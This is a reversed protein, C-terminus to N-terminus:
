LTNPNLLEDSEKKLYHLVSANNQQFLRKAIRQIADPTVRFWAEVQQNLRNADGLLEYYALNMAKAVVNSESFTHSAEVKNKVKQLERDGIVEDALQKLEQWIAQEAHVIDIDTHPKGTIIFLGPDMSGTIYANIESFLKQDHLLKGTLRASEGNALLDSLLDTAHFDPHNRDCMHFAIYIQDQPVERKVKKRKEVDQPPEAPLNRSHKKQAPINGFWKEALQFVEQPDVNGAVSLIANAPHYFKKFFAKVDDLSANRIHDMEAGITAWRYPHVDYTLPQLLLWADGYPQNLYSQKFEEVVVDKQTQLKEESFALGLMRDSELWFALELNQAPLTLYYNTIDNTTFANNEGGAHQLPRDYHPINVSGEFMLHEFLHAFGTREPDEDRAGVDYLINVAAMPTTPDRHVLIKLGNNLIHKEFLVM